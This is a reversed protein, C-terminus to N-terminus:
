ITTESVYTLDMKVLEAPKLVKFGYVIMGRLYNGFTDKDKLSESTMLKEAYGIADYSGAICISKPAAKTGLNTVQNSVYVDLDLYQAWYVGGKGNTGNNIQFKVGALILKEKVWPAIVVFKNGAQVNSEDLLRSATSLDSLISVTDTSADTVTGATAESYVESGLVDTDVGKLLQYGAREATNGKLDVNAMADEIDNVQVGYYKSKDIKLALQGSVLKEYSVTGEYSNVTPDALDNFYITDGFAKVKDSKDRCIKKAILNDELTRYISGDWIEPIFASAGHKEM